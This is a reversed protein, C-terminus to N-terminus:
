VNNQNILSGQPKTHQHEAQPQSVDFSTRANLGRAQTFVELSYKVM